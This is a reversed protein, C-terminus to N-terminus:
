YPLVTNGNGLVIMKCWWTGWENSYYYGNHLETSGFSSVAYESTQYTALNLATNISDHEYGAYYYFWRVFEGYNHYPFAYDYETLYRSMQDFGIYCYNSSDPSDYGNLNMGTTGTWAYPLGVAGTNLPDYYGYADVVADNNTDLLIASSCTWIMTFREKNGTSYWLSSDRIGYNIANDRDTYDAYYYYHETPGWEVWEYDPVWTQTEESWYWGVLIWGQYSDMYPFFDGVHFNIAFDYM